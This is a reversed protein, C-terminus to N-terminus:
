TARLLAQSKAPGNEKVAIPGLLNRNLNEPFNGKVGRFYRSM